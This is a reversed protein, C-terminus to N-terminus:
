VPITGCRTLGGGWFFFFFCSGLEELCLMYPLLVTGYRPKNVEAYQDIIRPTYLPLMKFPNISVLIDGISTYIM